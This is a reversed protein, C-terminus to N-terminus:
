NKRVDCSRLHCVARCTKFGKQIEPIYKSLITNRIHFSQNCVIFHLQIIIFCFHYQDRWLLKESWVTGRDMSISLQSMLSELVTQLRPTERAWVRERELLLDGRDTRYVIQLKVPDTCYAARASFTLLFILNSYSGKAPQGLYRRELTWLFTWFSAALSIESDESNSVDRRHKVSKVPKRNLLSTLVFM